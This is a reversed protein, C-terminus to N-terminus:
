VWRVMSNFSKMLDYSGKAMGRKSGGAFNKSVTKHVLKRTRARPWRSTSWDHKWGWEEISVPRTSTLMTRWNSFGTTMESKFPTNSDTSWGEKNFCRQVVQFTPSWSNNTEQQEWQCNRIAKAPEKKNGRVQPHKLARPSGRWTYESGWPRVWDWAKFLM